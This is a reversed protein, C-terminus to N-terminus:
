KRIVGSVHPLSSFAESAALQLSCTHLLKHWSFTRCLTHEKCRHCCEALSAAVVLLAADEPPVRYARNAMVSHTPICHDTDLMDPARVVGGVALAHQRGAACQQLDAVSHHQQKTVFAKLECRGSGDQHYVFAACGHTTRCLACCSRADITLLRGNYMDTAGPLTEDLQAQCPATCATAGPSPLEVALVDFRKEARLGYLQHVVHCRERMADTRSTPLLVQGVLVDGGVRARCPVVHVAFTGLLWFGQSRSRLTRAYAYQTAPTNSPRWALITSNQTNSRFLRRCPTSFTGCWSISHGLTWRWVATADPQMSTARQTGMGHTALTGWVRTTTLVRPLVFTCSCAIAVWGLGDAQFDHSQGHLCRRPPTKLDVVCVALFM